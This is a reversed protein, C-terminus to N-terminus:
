HGSDADPTSATRFVDPNEKGTVYLFGALGKEMRSLAHDVLIYRGPVEVKFEVMTAGGPAVTTTQVNKLPLSTLDAQSYVRDFVEGIVHFSSTLNPGGVGFFIRVTEGVKAEMRHTKTLADHTGNFMLHEPQENLLKELSFEAEGPTGHRQATYLEGQMVYFERDVKALGGEPEVLIMGYMGNSIHQAVMPTACHYVYLGPNIAKFTFSKTSGPAAQTVAAGGGPGTVAHFDVSHIMHSDKANAMNVEVTDGVRVRLFPGPVKNNFTWYKYTTGDALQGTIETTELDVKLKKPGRAGVPKGVDLPNQSIDIGKAVPAAVAGGVVIKGIMGAAVHGPLTCVYTFVGKKDAKFVISTSSGKDNIQNSKANFDPVSIDHTAGDGNVLNIQVVAGEPVNLTPNATGKTAGTESVFVLKGDAIDTRLTYTVDPRYQVASSGNPKGHGAHQAFAPAMVATGVAITLLAQSLITRKM